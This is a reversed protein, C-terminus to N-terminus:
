GMSVDRDRKNTQSQHPVTNVLRLPMILTVYFPRLYHRTTLISRVRFCCVFCFILMKKWRARLGTVRSQSVGAYADNYEPWTQPIDCLQSKSSLKRKYLSPRQPQPPSSPPTIPVEITPVTTPTASTTALHSSKMTLLAIKKRFGMSIFSPLSSRRRKSPTPSPREPSVLSM